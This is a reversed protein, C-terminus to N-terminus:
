GNLKRGCMPCYNIPIASESLRSEIGDISIDLYGGDEDHWVEVDTSANTFMQLNGVQAKCYKCM